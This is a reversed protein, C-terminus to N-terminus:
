IWAEKMLEKLQKRARSLQQRVAAKSQNTLEAIAVSDYQEYYYLHIVMRLKPPLKGMAELVAMREVSQTSSDATQEPLSGRRRRWPSRLIDKCQNVTVRILWARIHEDDRFHDETELLTLLVEQTVDQADQYQQLIGFALRYIMNQYQHALPEWRANTM